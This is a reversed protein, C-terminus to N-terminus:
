HRPQGERRRQLVDRTFYGAAFAVVVMVVSATIVVAVAM